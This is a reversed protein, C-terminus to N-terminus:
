LGEQMIDITFRKCELREFNNGEEFLLSKKIRLGTLDYLYTFPLLLSMIHISMLIQSNDKTKAYLFPLYNM